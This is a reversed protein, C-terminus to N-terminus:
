RSTPKRQALFMYRHPVTVRTHCHPRPRVSLAVSVRLWRAATMHEGEFIVSVEAAAIEIREGAGVLREGIKIQWRAARALWPALMVEITTPALGVVM